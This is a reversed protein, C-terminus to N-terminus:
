KMLEWFDAHYVLEWLGYCVLSLIIVQFYSITRYIEIERYLVIAPWTYFSGWKLIHWLWQLPTWDLCAFFNWQSINQSCMILMVRDSGADMITSFVSAFIIYLPPLLKKLRIIKDFSDMISNRFNFDM